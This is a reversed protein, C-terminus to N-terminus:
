EREIALDGAPRDLHGAPLALIMAFTATRWAVGMTRDTNSMGFRSTDAPRVGFTGDGNYLSLFELRFETMFASWDRKGLVRCALAGFFLHFDPSVHGMPIDALHRRFYASMKKYLPRRELRLRSMALLASATRGASGMGQQGPRASYGVGGGGDSSQEIYNVAKVIVEDPVQLGLSKLEGLAALCINGTATLEAYDLPYPLDSRPGHAWGGSPEMNRILAARMWNLRNLTAEDPDLAQVRALFLPAYGLAWNVQSWNKGSSRAFEKNERGANAVLWKRAAQINEAYPGETPTSGSALFALGAIVTVATRGNAGGLRTPLSGDEAQLEALEKLCSELIASCRPCKEPCTKPHKVTGPVLVEFVETKGNRRVKVKAPVGAKRPAELLEAMRLFLPIKGSLSKKGVGVIVDGVQLGGHEGAGRSLLSTILIGVAPPRLGATRAAKGTAPIGEGGIAGLARPDPKANAPDGRIPGDSQDQAFAGSALFLTLAILILWRRM